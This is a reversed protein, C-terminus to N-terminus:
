DVEPVLKGARNLLPPPGKAVIKRAEARPCDEGCLTCNPDEGPDLEELQEKLSEYVELGDDTGPLDDQCIVCRRKYRTDKVSM